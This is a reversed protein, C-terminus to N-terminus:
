DTVYDAFPVSLSAALDRWHTYQALDPNDLLERGIQTGDARYQMEVVHTSDFMWFDQDPLGPNDKDTLDLIRVDEGARTSHAYFAFEFRLYDTIPKRIVHVRGITRGSERYRRIRVLWPDDEAVDLKGTDLFQQYEQDEEPMTYVPLTELRFAEQKYSDFFTRWKNGDLRM